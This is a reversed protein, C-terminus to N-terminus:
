TWVEGRREGVKWADLLSDSPLFLIPMRRFDMFNGLSVVADRLGLSDVSAIIEQPVSSETQTEVCILFRRKAAEKRATSYGIWMLLSVVVCLNSKSNEARVVFCDSTRCNSKTKPRTPWRCICKPSSTKAIQVLHWLYLTEEESCTKPTNCLKM